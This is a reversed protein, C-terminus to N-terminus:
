KKNNNRNDIVCIGGNKLIIDFNEDHMAHSTKLLTVSHGNESLKFAHACGSNGCGIITIKM